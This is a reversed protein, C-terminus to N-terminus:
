DSRLAIIPDVRSARRAPIYAAVVTVAGLLAVLGLLLAPDWVRTDVLFEELARAVALSGFAGLLAGALSMIGAGQIVRRVLSAANEGLAMRIGIERTRRSVTHSVVGYLGVTALVLALLAFCAVVTARFREPAVGESLRELMTAVHAVPVTQDIERAVARVGAILAPSDSTSRVIVWSGADRPLQRRSLFMEPFPAAKVSAHRKDGVVGVIEWSRGRMTVRRGIPDEGPYYAAALAANVVIVPPASDADAATLRRGRILPLGVAALYDDSVM